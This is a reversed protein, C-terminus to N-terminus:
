LRPRIPFAPLPGRPSCISYFLFAICHWECGVSKLMQYHLLAGGGGGGGGHQVKCLSDMVVAV